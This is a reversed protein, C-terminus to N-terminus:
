KLLYRGYQNVMKNVKQNLLAAFGEAVKPFPRGNKHITLLKQDYACLDAIQLGAVNQKKARITLEDKPYADRYYQGDGFHSGVRRLEQYALQILADEVKGRSEAVVDAQIEHLICYGRVRNLLTALSYAYADFTMLPYEEKHTKKDIVVTFIRTYPVISEMYGLLSKEWRANLADDM